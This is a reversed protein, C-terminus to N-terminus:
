IDWAHRLLRERLQYADDAQSGSFSGSLLTGMQLTLMQVIRFHQLYNVCFNSKFIIKEVRFYKKNVGLCYQRSM